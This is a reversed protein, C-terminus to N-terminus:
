MKPNLGSAFTPPSFPPFLDALGRPGNLVDRHLDRPRSDRHPDEQGLVSTHHNALVYNRASM